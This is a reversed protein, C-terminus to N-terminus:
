RLFVLMQRIVVINITKVTHDSEAAIGLTDIITVAEDIRVSPHKIIVDEVVGLFGGKLVPYM